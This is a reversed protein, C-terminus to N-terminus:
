LSGTVFSRPATPRFISLYFVQTTCLIPSVEELADHYDIKRAKKTTGECGLEESIQASRDDLHLSIRGSVERAV